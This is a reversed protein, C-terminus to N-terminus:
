FFMDLSSFFFNNFFSSFNSRFSFFFFFFSFFDLFSLRRDLSLSEDSSDSDSSRRKDKKSKKDKKKKKKEKRELKELKKLLKVKEERSMNKFSEIPDKSKSSHGKPGAIMEYQKVRPDDQMEWATFRLKMGDEQMENQLKNHDLQTCPADADFAKGYMPCEKDTNIGM